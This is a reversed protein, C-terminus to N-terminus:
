LPITLRDARRRAVLGNAPGSMSISSTATSTSITQRRSGVTQTICSQCVAPVLFRCLGPERSAGAAFRCRSAHICTVVGNTVPTDEPLRGHHDESFDVSRAAETGVVDTLWAIDNQFSLTWEVSAGDAFSTGCCQMQWADVWVRM